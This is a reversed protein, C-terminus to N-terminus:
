HLYQNLATHESQFQNIILTQAKEMTNLTKIILKPKMKFKIREQEEKTLPTDKNDKVIDQFIKSLSTKIEQKRNTPNLAAKKAERNAKENGEIGLHGPFSWLQVLMFKHLTNLYRSARLYLYQAVSPKAPNAIKSLAGAKNSLIIIRGQKNRNRTAFTRRCVEGM